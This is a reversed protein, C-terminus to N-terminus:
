LGGARLVSVTVLPKRPHDTKFTIVSPAPSGNRSLSFVLFSHSRAANTAIPSIVIHPDSCQAELIQFPTEDNSLLLIKKESSSGAFTVSSPATIGGAGRILFSMPQILPDRRDAFPIKVQGRHSRGVFQDAQVGLLVDWNWEVLDNELVGQEKVLRIGRAVIGEPLVLVPELPPASGQRCRYSVRVPKLKEESAVATLQHSIVDPLVVLDAYIIFRVEAQHRPRDTESFALNYHREAVVNGTAINISFSRLKQPALTFTNGAVLTKGDLSATICGCTAGDYKLTRDAGSRNELSWIAQVQKGGSVESLLFAGLDADSILPPVAVVNSSGYNFASYACITITLGVIAFFVPHRIAKIM